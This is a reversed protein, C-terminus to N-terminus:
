ETSGITRTWIPIHKFMGFCELSSRLKTPLRVTSTNRSTPSTARYLCAIVSYPSEAPYHFTRLYRPLRRFTWCTTSEPTRIQVVSRCLLLWGSINNRRRRTTSQWIRESPEHAKGTIDYRNIPDRFRLTHQLFKNSIVETIERSLVSVLIIRCSGRRRGRRTPGM